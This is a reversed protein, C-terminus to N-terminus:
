VMLFLGPSDGEGLDAMQDKIHGGLNAGCKLGLLGDPRGAVLDLERSLKLTAPPFPDIAFFLYRRNLRALPDSRAFTSRAILAPHCGPIFTRSTRLPLLVRRMAAPTISAQHVEM